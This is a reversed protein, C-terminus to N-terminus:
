KAKAAPQGLQRSIAQIQAAAANDTRSTQLSITVGLVFVIAAMGLLAVRLMIHRPLRGVRLSNLTTSLRDVLSESDIAQYDASPQSAQDALPQPAVGALSIALAAPSGTNNWATGSGVSSRIAEVHERVKSRPTAPLLESTATDNRLVESFLQSSARPGVRSPTPVAVAAYRPSQRLRGRFAQNDLGIKARDPM